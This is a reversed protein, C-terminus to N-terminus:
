AGQLSDYRSETMGSSTREDQVRIDVLAAEVESNGEQVGANAGEETAQARRAGETGRHGRSAVSNRKCGETCWCRCAWCAAEDRIGERGRGLARAPDM